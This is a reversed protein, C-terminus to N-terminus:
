TPPAQPWVDPGVLDYFNESCWAITKRSTLCPASNQVWVYPRGKAVKKIWPLVVSELMETYVDSNIRLGQPINHPPMVDGDSSVVGLVMVTAPFKTQMVVPVDAPNRALWRNNQSNTRQDQTCNIEDSFFGLIENEM